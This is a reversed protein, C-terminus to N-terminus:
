EEDSSCFEEWFRCVIAPAEGNMLANYGRECLKKANNGRYGLHETNGYKRSLVIAREVYDEDEYYAVIAAVVHDYKNSLAENFDHRWKFVNEAAQAGGNATSIIHCIDEKPARGKIGIMKRYEERFYKPDFSSWDDSSASLKGMDEPPYFEPEASM